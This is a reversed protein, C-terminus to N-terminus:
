ASMASAVASVLEPEERPLVTRPDLLVRDEDIRAVVPPNWRRLREMVGQPGGPTSTCKLALSWSPLTEGPLSGGGIASRSEEVQAPCELRELWGMAREKIRPAPDSIM